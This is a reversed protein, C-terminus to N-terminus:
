PELRLSVQRAPLVKPAPLHVASDMLMSGRAMLVLQGGAIEDEPLEFVAFAQGKLGPEFQALSLARPFSEIRASQVYQRGTAGLWIAEVQQSKERASIALEAVLFIASTDRVVEKGFQAYSITGSSRLGALEATFLRGEGVGNEGARVGFPQFSSDYSPLTNMMMGLLGGGLVVVVLNVFHNM